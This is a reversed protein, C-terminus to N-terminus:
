YNNINRYAVVLKKCKTKTHLIINRFLNALRFLPCTQTVGIPSEKLILSTGPGGCAFYRRSSVHLINVFNFTVFAKLRKGLYIM